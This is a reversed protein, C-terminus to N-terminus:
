IFLIAIAAGACLGLTQYSLLRTDQNKTYNELTRVCESHVSTLGKVQGEMDFQGLSRGLLEMAAKALKPMDRVKQIAAHMCKEVDPSIQNDLEEALFLFCKKLPGQSTFAAQRCLEPLPTLRYQLECEMLDLLSILQRLTKEERRHDAAMFFGFGGCGVVVLFAGFLKIM